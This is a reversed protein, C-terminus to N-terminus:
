YRSKVVSWSSEEVGVIDLVTLDVQTCARRGGSDVRVWGSHTGPALEATEGQQVQLELVPQLAEPSCYSSNTPCGSVWYGCVVGASAGFGDYQTAYDDPACVELWNHSGVHFRGYEPVDFFFRLLPVLEGTGIQCNSWHLEVSAENGAVSVSGYGGDAIEYDTLTWTDPWDVEGDFYDFGYPPDEVRLEAYLVFQVAGRLTTWEVLDDCSTVEPWSWSDAAAVHTHVGGAYIPNALSGVPLLLILAFALAALRRTTM